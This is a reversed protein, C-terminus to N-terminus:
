LPELDEPNVFRKKKFAEMGLKAVVEAKPHWDINKRTLGDMDGLFFIKGKLRKVRDMLGEMPLLLYKSIRKIRKIDSRYLCAYVKNKKADLVPCIIGCFGKANQAIADLTPVAVIPKKLTYGLGKVVTVGIRLGTFSGPGISVCFGDIDKLKTKTKKLLRDIMPVLLRSHEREAKKHFKASVKDGNIIALSLYDTSTDIALLKM